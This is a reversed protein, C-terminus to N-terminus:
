TPQTEPEPEPTEPEGLEHLRFQRRYQTPTMGTEQRFVTTLRVASEFGSREAIVPMSLDTAALLDRAREIHARRIEELPSRGLVTRFKRELSRRAVPVARLVDTVGISEHAHDRIFSVAASLERDEIALVDSSQRTIVGRPPVLIPDKAVTEGAMLRDLMAAAEYGIREGAVAISSLPPYAATCIPEDNDVGLVAVDDPVRLEADRCAETISWAQADNAALLAVPSPLTKLWNVMQRADEPTWAPLNRQARWAAHSHYTLNRERLFDAFGRERGVAYALAPNAAVAFHRYGRELFYAAAMAGVADEDIGVRHLASNAHLNSVNIAPIGTSAVAGGVTGTAANGIFGDFQKLTAPNAFQPGVGFVFVWPKSPRAYTVIGRLVARNYEYQTALYLGIHLYRSM